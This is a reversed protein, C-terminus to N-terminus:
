PSLRKWDKPTYGTAAKFIRFFTSESSFGASMWVETITIDPQNRLLRQAHAVRYANVFQKFTGRQTNICDSVIRQNISMAEAFDAVKLNPNLYLQRQEMVQCIREMLDAEPEDEEVPKQIEEEVQPPMATDQHHNRKRRALWVFLASLAIAALLALGWTWLPLGTGATQESPSVHLLWTAATPQFNNSTPIGGALILNGDETLIPNIIDCDTLLDTYGLTLRAPVNAYDITLVYVRRSANSTVYAVSDMGIVYARENKRDALMLYSYWIDGWKSTKPIPVDTPLLSFEEGKVRAIAIQRQDNSVLLLYSYDGTAEDGIFSAQSPITLNSIMLRWQELLPIHLSDGHLRDAVPQLITKGLTDVASVILANDRSTRLIFPTSRGVTCQKVHFFSKKGDFMEIDDAHHWNGAIVARGSDLALAAAMSRKTDLSGFGESTHSVPDYLEAGFTQGIGLEKEHGGAILLKGTSLEVACGDDHCYALPVVHWAGNKYYEATPTPVFNTTRGGVVTPEGNVCLSMHGHRSVNMDPLREVKIKVVPCTAASSNRQQAVLPLLTLLLCLLVTLKKM